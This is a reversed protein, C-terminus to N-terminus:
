SGDPFFLVLYRKKHPKGNSFVRQDTTM